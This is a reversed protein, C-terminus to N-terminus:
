QLDVQITLYLFRVQSVLRNRLPMLHLRSMTQMYSSQTQSLGPLLNFQPHVPVSMGLCTLVIQVLRNPARLVPHDAGGASSMVRLPELASLHLFSTQAQVLHVRGGGLLMHRTLSVM